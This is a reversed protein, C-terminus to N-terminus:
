RQLVVEDARAGVERTALKGEAEVAKGASRDGEPVGRGREVRGGLRADHRGERRDVTGLRRVPRANRGANKAVADDLLRGGLADLLYQANEVPQGRRYARLLVQQHSIALLVHVPCGVLLAVRNQVLLTL